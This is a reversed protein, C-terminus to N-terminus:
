YYGQSPNNRGFLYGFLSFQSDTLFAGIWLLVIGFIFSKLYFKRSVLSIVVSLGILAGGFTLCLEGFVSFIARLTLSVEYRLTIGYIPMFVVLFLIIGMFIWHTTRSHKKKLIIITQNNKTKIRSM